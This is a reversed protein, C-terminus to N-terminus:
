SENRYLNDMYINNSYSYLNNTIEGDNDENLNFSKFNKQDKIVM